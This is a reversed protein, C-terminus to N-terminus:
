GEGEAACGRVCVDVPPRWICVKIERGGRPTSWGWGAASLSLLVTILPLPIHARGNEDM